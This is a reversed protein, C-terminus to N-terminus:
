HTSIGGNGPRDRRKDDEAANTVASTDTSSSDLGGRIVTQQLHSLVATPRLTQRLTHLNQSM